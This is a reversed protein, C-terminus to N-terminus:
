SGSPSELARLRRDLSTVAALISELLAMDDKEAGREGGSLTQTRIPAWLVAAFQGNAARATGAVTLRNNVDLASAEDGHLGILDVTTGTQPSWIFARRFEEGSPLRVGVVFGRDNVATVETSGSGIGDIPLMTGEHPNPGAAGPRPSWRFARSTDDGTSASTGVIVGHDNIDHAFSVITGPLVGLDSM